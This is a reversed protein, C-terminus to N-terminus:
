PWHWMGTSYVLRNQGALIRLSHMICERDCRLAIVLEDITWMKSSAQILAFTERTIDRSQSLVQKARELARQMDEAAEREKETKAEARMARLHDVMKQQRAPQKFFTAALARDHDEYPEAETAIQKAREEAEREAALEAQKAAREFAIREREKAAQAAKERRAIILPERQWHPRYHRPREPIEWDLEERNWRKRRQAAETELKAQRAQWKQRESELEAAQIEQDRKRQALIEARKIPDEHRLLPRLNLPKIYNVPAESFPSIWYHLEEDLVPRGCNFVDAPAAITSYALSGCGVNGRERVREIFAFDDADLDRAFFGNIVVHHLHRYFKPTYFALPKM